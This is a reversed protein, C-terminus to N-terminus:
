GDGIDGQSDEKQIGYGHSQSYGITAAGFIWCGEDSGHAGM